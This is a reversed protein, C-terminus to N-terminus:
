SLRSCKGINCQWHSGFLSNDYNWSILRLFPCIAISPFVRLFAFNLVLISFAVLFTLLCDLILTHHHLLAPHHHFISSILLMFLLLFGRGCTLPPMGSPATQSRSVPTSLHNIFFSWHPHDLPDLLSSQWSIVCTVRLLLSLSSMCPPFLKTNLANRYKSGTCCNSFLTLIPPDPLQLLLVLLYWEPYTSPSKVTNLEQTM